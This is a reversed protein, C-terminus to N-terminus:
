FISFPSFCTENNALEPKLPPPTLCLYFITVSEKPKNKGWENNFDMLFVFIKMHQLTCMKFYTKNCVGQIRSFNHDGCYLEHIIPKLINTIFKNLYRHLSGTM